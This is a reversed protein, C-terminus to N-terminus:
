FRESMIKNRQKSVTFYLGGSLLATAKNWTTTGGVLIGGACLSHGRLQIFTHITVAWGGVKDAKVFGMIIGNSEGLTETVNLKGLM